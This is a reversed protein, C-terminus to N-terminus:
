YGTNPYSKEQSNVMKKHPNVKDFSEECDIFALRM